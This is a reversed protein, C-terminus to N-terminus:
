TNQKTQNRAAACLRADVDVGHLLVGLLEHRGQLMHRGPIEHVRVDLGVVDEDVLAEPRELKCVEPVDNKRHIEM